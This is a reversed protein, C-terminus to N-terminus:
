KTLLSKCVKAVESAILFPIKARLASRTRYNYQRYDYEMNRNPFRMYPMLPFDINGWLCRRGGKSVMFEWIPTEHYWKKLRAVNEFAYLPPQAEEILRTFEGILALGEKPDPPKRGKIGKNVQTMTSFDRCPPSGIIVDFRKLRKGELTRIDQLILDYPYGWNVIDVGVCEFGESHFGESWGGM